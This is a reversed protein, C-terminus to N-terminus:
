ILSYLKDCARNQPSERSVFYALAGGFGKPYASEVFQLKISLCIYM